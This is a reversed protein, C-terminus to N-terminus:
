AIMNAAAGADDSLKPNAFDEVRALRIVTTCVDVALAGGRLPVYGNQDHVAPQVPRGVVHREVDERRRIRRTSVPSSTFSFLMTARRVYVRFPADIRASKMPSAPTARSGFKDIMAYIQTGIKRNESKRL